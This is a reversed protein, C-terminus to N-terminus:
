NKNKNKTKKAKTIKCNNQGLIAKSWSEEIEVETEKRVPILTSCWM